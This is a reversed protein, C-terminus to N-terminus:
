RRLYSQRLEPSFREIAYRLMTRPMARVHEDLFCELRAQNRKGVERLMWGTAKHMLDERDGLLQGAMELTDDFDGRRIFHLSAVMAIRREWLSSSQVLTRLASRDRERLFAGVIHPASIDVLDWNNIRATNELYALYIGQRQNEDGDAFAQMLLLLALAREEHFRSGLLTLCAPLAMGKASKALKRLVPTKIGLFVDGEGYQGSGTKFFGQLIRATEANALGRVQSQLGALTM